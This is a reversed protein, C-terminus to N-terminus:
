DVFNVNVNHNIPKNPDGGEITMPLVKGLLSLYSGNKEAQEMLYKVTGTPEDDYQAGGARDTAELIAMKLGTTTKNLSGPKRGANEPRPEGVKFVM